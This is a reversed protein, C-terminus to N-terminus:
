RRRKRRTNSVKAGRIPRRSLLTGGYASTHYVKGRRVSVLGNDSGNGRNKSVGKKSRPAQLTSRRSERIVDERRIFRIAGKQGPEKGPRTITVTMIGLPVKLHVPPKGTITQITDYASRSDKVITAGKPPAGLWTTIDEKRYPATIAYWLDKPPKGLAGQQWAVAGEKKTFTKEKESGAGPLKLRIRKKLKEEEKEKLKLKLKEDPKPSPEPEAKPGLAPTPTPTPFPALKSKPKLEPKPSPKSELIIRLKESLLPAPLPYSMAGPRPDIMERPIPQPALKRSPKTAFKEDPAM